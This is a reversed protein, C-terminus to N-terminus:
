ECLSGTICDLFEAGAEFQEIALWEDPQHAQAIDGPGCIVASYGAVQFHGAETGYSVVHSGNDGTIRRVLAEAPGDNEPRLGPVDFFPDLDIGTDPHVSQMAAEIESASLRFSEPSYGDFKESLERVAADGRAEIDGLTSEVVARTKADDERREEESKATKLYEITM